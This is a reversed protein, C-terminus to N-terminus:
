GWDGLLRLLDAVDTVGDEDLDGPCCFGDCGWDGLLLMLDAVDVGGDGDVDGDRLGCRGDASINQAYIDDGLGEGRDDTWVIATMGYDNIAVAPHDKDSCISSVGAIAPDWVFGGEGDLRSADLYSHKWATTEVWSGIAGDGHPCVNLHSYDYPCGPVVERGWDGWQRNGFDDFKQAYVGAITEGVVQEMWFVFTERTAVNYCAAPYCRDRYASSVAAGDHGFAESGDARIHQAFVQLRGPACRYWSFVAGGMGDTAFPPLSGYQLTGGDYVVVHGDRTEEAEWMPTGDPDIKQTWLHRPGAYGYHRVWSAIVAGEDSANLDCLWFSAGDEDKWVIVESWLPSGDPALRQFHLDLHVTSYDPDRSWGVVYAGDTTAAVMPRCLFDDGTTDTLPIGNIPWLHDGDGDLRTVYIQHRHDRIDQYVLVPCDQADVALDYGQTAEGFRKAALVGCSPWMLNGAADLRQVYLNRGEAIDEWSIFWGGDSACVVRTNYQNGGRECIALNEFPDGPWRAEVPLAACVMVLACTAYRAQM